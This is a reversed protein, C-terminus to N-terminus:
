KYLNWFSPAQVTDYPRGSKTKKASPPNSRPTSEKKRKNQIPTSKKSRVETWPEEDEEMKPTQPEEEQKVIEQPPITVEQEVPEDEKVPLIEVSEKPPPLIDEKFRQIGALAKELLAVKLPSAIKEDRLMDVLASYAEGLKADEKSLALFPVLRYKNAFNM